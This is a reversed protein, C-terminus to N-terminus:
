YLIKKSKENMGAGYVRGQRAGPQLGTAVVLHEELHCGFTKIYYEM